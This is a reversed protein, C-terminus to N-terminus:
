CIFVTKVVAAALVADVFSFLLLLLLLLFLMMLRFHNYCCNCCSCSCWCVFVAIVVDTSVGGVVVFVAMVVVADVLSFLWFLLLRFLM